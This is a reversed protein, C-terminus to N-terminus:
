GLRGQIVSTRVFLTIQVCVRLSPPWTLLGLNFVAFWLSPRPASGERLPGRFSGVRGIGQNRVELKWFQSATRKQHKLQEAQPLRHWPMATGVCVLVWTATIPAPAAHEPHYQTDKISTKGPPFISSTMPFGTLTLFTMTRILLVSKTALPWLEVGTVLQVVKPLNSKQTQKSM